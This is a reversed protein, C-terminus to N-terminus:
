TGCRCRASEAGWAHRIEIIVEHLIKDVVDHGVCFRVIPHQSVPLVPGDRSKRHPACMREVDCDRVDVFEGVDPNETRSNEADSTARAAAGLTGSPLLLM